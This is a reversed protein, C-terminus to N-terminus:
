NYLNLDFIKDSLEQNINKVIINSRVRNGYLDITEWFYNKKNEVPYHHSEADEELPLEGKFFTTFFPTLLPCKNDSLRCFHTFPVRSEYQPTLLSM